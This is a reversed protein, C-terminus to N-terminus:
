SRATEFWVCTGEATRTVGWRHALLEVLRLGWGGGEAAREAHAAFGSGHDLVACRIESNVDLDLVITGDGGAQGHLISNTVLESVLLKVEDLTSRGVRASLESTVIERARAPGDARASIRYLARLRPQM